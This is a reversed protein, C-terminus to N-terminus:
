DANELKKFKFYINEPPTKYYLLLAPCLWGEMKTVEDRYWAGTQTKERDFINLISTYDPMPTDSFIAVFGKKGDINEKALYYEIIEPIGAVFPEKVLNVRDDDFVWMGSHYYPTISFIANNITNNTNVLTTSM